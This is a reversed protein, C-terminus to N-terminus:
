AHAAAQQPAAQAQSLTKGTGSLSTEPRKSRYDAVAAKIADEALMSCHVLNNTTDRTKPQPSPGAFFESKVPPLCLESAIESNKIAVADDVTNRDTCINQPFFRGSCLILSPIPPMRTKGHVLTTLYSSSAIASGCGFTKFKAEIIKNTVPDVRIDLKMVDGCAPAGVLGSGVSPDPNPPPRNPVRSTAATLCKDKEHYFRRASPVTAAPAATLSPRTAARLATKTSVSAAVSSAAALSRTLATRATFM